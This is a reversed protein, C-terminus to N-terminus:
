SLERSAACKRQWPQTEKLLEKVSNLRLLSTFLLERGGYSETYKPSSDPLTKTWLVSADALNHVTLEWGGKKLQKWEMLQGFDMHVKDDITYKM